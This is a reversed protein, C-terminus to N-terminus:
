RCFFRAPELSVNINRGHLEEDNTQIKEAIVEVRGDIREIDIGGSVSRKYM